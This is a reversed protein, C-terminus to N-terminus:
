ARTGNDCEPGHASAKVIFRHDSETLPVRSKAAKKKSWFRRSQSQSGSFCDPSFGRRSFAHLDSGNTAFQYGFRKALLELSKQTYFAVHQGHDLGYYWWDGMKPVPEPLLTTSFLLFPSFGSLKEMEEVPNTLHEFVEFATVAEYPGTLPVAAEFGRCFLNQCYLDAWRFDYGIDRMLRVFLGYGAAYDLFTADPNLQSEICQRTQERAWLNRAVYGTDARNIPEAYAEALWSPDAVFMFGCNSCKQFVAKYKHRVTARAYEATQGGCINCKM